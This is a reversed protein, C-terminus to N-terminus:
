DPLPRGQFSKTRCGYYGEWRAAETAQRSRSIEPVDGPGRPASMMGAGSGAVRPASVEVQQVNVAAAAAEAPRVAMSYASCSAVIQRMMADSQERTPKPEQAKYWALYQRGQCQLPDQEKAGAGSPLDGNSTRAHALVGPATRKVAPSSNSLPAQPRVIILKADSGCPKDSYVTGGDAGQCQYVAAGLPASAIILLAGLTARSPLAQGAGKLLQM